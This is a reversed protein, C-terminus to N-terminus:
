GLTWCRVAAHRDPLSSRQRDAPLPGCEGSRRERPNREAKHREHRRGRGARRRRPRDAPGWGSPGRSSRAPLLSLAWGSPPPTSWLCPVAGVGVGVTEARRVHGSRSRGSRRCPRGRRVRGRRWVDARRWVCPEPADFASSLFASDLTLRLHWFNQRWAPRGAVDHRCAQSPVSVLLAAPLERELLQSIPPLRNARPPQQLPVVGLPHLRRLTARRRRM